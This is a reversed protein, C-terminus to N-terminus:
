NWSNNTCESYLDYQNWGGIISIILFWLNKIDSQQLENFSFKLIHILNRSILRLNSIYDGSVDNPITCLIFLIWQTILDNIDKSENFYEILYNIM